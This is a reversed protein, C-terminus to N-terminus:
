RSLPRRVIVAFGGGVPYVISIPEWGERSLKNLEEAVGEPTKPRKSMYEYM